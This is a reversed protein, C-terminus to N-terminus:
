VVQLSSKEFIKPLLIAVANARRQLGKTRRKKMKKM